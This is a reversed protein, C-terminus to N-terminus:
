VAAYKRVVNEFARNEGWYQVTLVKCLGLSLVGLISKADIIVRQDVVDIDFDCGEAADVFERVEDTAMLKIKKEKMEIM